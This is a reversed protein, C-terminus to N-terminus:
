NRREPPSLPAVQLEAIPALPSIAIEKPAIDSPRTAGVTIPAIPSLPDIASPEDAAVAAEITVRNEIRRSAPALGFPAAHPAPISAAGPAPAPPAPIRVIPRPDSTALTPVARAAPAAAHRWPILVALVLMAAAAIPIAFWAFKRRFASAVSATRDIQQLVRGRLGAPPEVDLMELVARDIAVNLRGDATKRRGDQDSM